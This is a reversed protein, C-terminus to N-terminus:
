LNNCTGKILSYRSDILVRELSSGGLCTSQCVALSDSGIGYFPCCGYIYGSHEIYNLCAFTLTISCPVLLGKILLIYHCHVEAGM